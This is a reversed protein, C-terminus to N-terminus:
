SVQKRPQVTFAAPSNLKQEQHNPLGKLYLYIYIYIYINVYLLIRINTVHSKYWGFTFMPALPTQLISIICKSLVYLWCKLYMMRGKHHPSGSPQRKLSCGKYKYWNSMVFRSFRENHISEEEECSTHDHIIVITFIVHLVKLHM